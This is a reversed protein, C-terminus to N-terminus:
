AVQQHELKIAHGGLHSTLAGAKQVGVLSREMVNEFYLPFHRVDNHAMGHFLVMNNRINYRRLKSSDGISNRVGRKRKERLVRPGVGAKYGSALLGFERM